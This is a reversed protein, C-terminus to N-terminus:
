ERESEDRMGDLYGEYNAKELQEQEKELLELEIETIVGTLTTFPGLMDSKRFQESKDILRSRLEQMATKM